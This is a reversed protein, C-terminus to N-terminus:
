QEHKNFKVRHYPLHKKKAHSIVNNLINLNKTPDATLTTDLLEYINASNPETQFHHICEANWTEIKISRSPDNRKCTLFNYFTFYPLHDSIRSVLIGSTSPLCSRKLKCLFNDILTCNHYPFRTPPTIQPFFSQAVVSNFYNGLTANNNIKLLDINLDGAIITERNARQLNELM